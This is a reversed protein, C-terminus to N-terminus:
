TPVIIALIKNYLDSFITKDFLITESKELFM